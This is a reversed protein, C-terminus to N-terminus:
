AAVRLLDDDLDLLHQGPALLAPDGGVRVHVEERGHRGQQFARGLADVHDVQQGALPALQHGVDAVEVALGGPARALGAAVALVQHADAGLVALVHQPVDRQQAVAPAIM